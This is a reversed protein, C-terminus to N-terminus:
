SPLFSSFFISINKQLFFFIIEDLGPLNQFQFSSKPQQVNQMQSKLQCSDTPMTLKDQSQRLFHVSKKATYSPSQRPRQRQRGFSVTSADKFTMVPLINGSKGKQDFLDSHVSVTKNKKVHQMNLRSMFIESLSFM